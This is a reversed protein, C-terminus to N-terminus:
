VRNKLYSKIRKWRAGAFAALPLLIAGWLFEIKPMVYKDIFASFSDTSKVNVKITESRWTGFSRTENVGDQNKKEYYLSVRVWQDGDREASIEWNWINNDSNNVDLKRGDADDGAGTLSRITLGSSARLSAVVVKGLEAEHAHISNGELDVGHYDNIFGQITDDITKEVAVLLSIETSEGVFMNNPTNFVLSAKLLKENGYKEVTNTAESVLLQSRSLLEAYESEKVELSASAENAQAFAIALREEYKHELLMIEEINPKLKALENQKLIIENRLNENSTNFKSALKSQLSLKGKIFKIADQKSVLKRILAINNKKLYKKQVEAQRASLRALAFFSPENKIISSCSQTILLQALLLVYLVKKKM